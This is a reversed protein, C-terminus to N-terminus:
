VKENGLEDLKRRVEAKVRDICLVDDVTILVPPSKLMETILIIHHHSLLFSRRGRRCKGEVPISVDIRNHIPLLMDKRLKRLEILVKQAADYDFQGGLMVDKRARVSVLENTISTSSCTNEKLSTQKNATKTSLLNDLPSWNMRESLGGLDSLAVQMSAM